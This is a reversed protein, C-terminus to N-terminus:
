LANINDVNTVNPYTDKPIDLRLIRKVIPSSPVIPTQWDVSFGQAGAFRQHIIFNIM